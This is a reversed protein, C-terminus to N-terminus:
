RGLSDDGTHGDARDNEVDVEGQRPGARIETRLAVLAEARPVAQREVRGAIGVRPPRREDVQLPM